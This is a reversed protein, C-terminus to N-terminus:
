EGDCSGRFERNDGELKFSGTNHRRGTPMGPERGERCSHHPRNLCHGTGQSAGGM